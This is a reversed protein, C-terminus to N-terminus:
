FKYVLGLQLAHNRINKLKTGNYTNNGLAAGQIQPLTVSGQTRYEYTLRGLWNNTFYYDTGAGIIFSTITKKVRYQNATLAPGGLVGATDINLEQKVTDRSVALGLKLFPVWAKVVYGLRASLGFAAGRAYRIKPQNTIVVPGAHENTDTTTFTKSGEGSISAELATYIANNFVWGYGAVLGGIFANNKHTKNHAAATNSNTFVSPDAFIGGKVDYSQRSLGAQVGVYAGAKSAAEAANIVTLPSFLMLAKAFQKIM